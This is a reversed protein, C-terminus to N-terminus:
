KRGCEIAKAATKPKMSLSAASIGDLNKKYKQITNKIKLLNQVKRFPLFNVQPVQKKTRVTKFISKYGTNAVM